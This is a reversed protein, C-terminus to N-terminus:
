PVPIRYPEIRSAIRNAPPVIHPRHTPRHPEIRKIPSHSRSATVATGQPKPRQLHQSRTVAPLRKALAPNSTSIPRNISQYIRESQESISSTPQPDQLSPCDTSRFQSHPLPSHLKAHPPFRHKSPGPSKGTRAEALDLKASRMTPARILAKPELVTVLRDASPSNTGSLVYSLVILRQMGQRGHRRWLSPICGVVRIGPAFIARLHVAM